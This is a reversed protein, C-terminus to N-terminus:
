EAAREIDARLYKGAVMYFFFSMVNVVLVSVLAWRLAHQGLDTYSALFDSIIGTLQPGLGLGILNVVLLMISAASSDSDNATTQLLCAWLHVPSVSPAGVSWRGARGLM